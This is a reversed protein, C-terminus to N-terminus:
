FARGIDKTKIGAKKAADRAAKIADPNGTAAAATVNKLLQAHVDDMNLKDEIAQQKMKQAKAAEDEFGAAIANQICEQLDEENGAAKEIRQQLAVRENNKQTHIAEELFREALATEEELALAQADRLCLRLEEVNGSMRDLRQQLAKKKNHLRREEEEKQQLSEAMTEVHKLEDKDMGAKRAHQLLERLEKYKLVVVGEEIAKIDERAM